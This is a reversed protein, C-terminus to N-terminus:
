VDAPTLSSRGPTSGRHDAVLPSVAADREGPADFFRGLPLRLRRFQAAPLSVTEWSASRPRMHRSYDRVSVAYFAYKRERFEWVDEHMTEVAETALEYAFLLVGRFQGGFATEWSLLSEVDDGTVWSEWLHGGEGGTPFRRGKVDVLWHDKESVSVIFDPSKLSAQAALARRSEDVAVCPRRHQRLYAAFAQDYHNTRHAM